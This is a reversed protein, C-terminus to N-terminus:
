LLELSQLECGDWHLWNEDAEKQLGSETMAWAGHGWM